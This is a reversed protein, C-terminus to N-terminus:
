MVKRVLCECMVSTNKAHNLVFQKGKVIVFICEPSLKAHEERCCDTEYWDQFTIGCYFCTTFDLKGTVFGNINTPQPALLLLKYYVKKLNYHLEVTHSFGVSSLNEPKQKSATPWSTFSQM